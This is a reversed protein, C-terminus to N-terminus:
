VGVNQFVRYILKKGTETLSFQLNNSSKKLKVPKNGRLKVPLGNM